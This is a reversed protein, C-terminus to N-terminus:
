LGSLWRRVYPEARIWIILYIIGIILGGIVDQPFHVGVYMRSFGILAIMIVALIRFWNNKFHYALYGWVVMAGQTHGSLFSPSTELVLPSTREAIGAENLLQDVRTHPELEPHPPRPIKWIDKIWSNLVSTFLYAYALGQGVSKEVCLYVVLLIVIYGLESGFNTIIPFVADLFSNRMGEIVLLVQYGWPILNWLFENM